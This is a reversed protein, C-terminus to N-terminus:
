GDESGPENGEMQAKLAALGAFPKADADSMPKVGDEAYIAEGLEAGEARPYDPLGLAIEELALEMLDLQDPMPEWDTDEDMESVSDAEPEQWTAVYRRDVDREVRTKVPDLTIVCAQTATAGVHGSFVWDTAGGPRLHGTLRVKQLDLLDLQAVGLALDEADFTLDVKVEKGSPMEALAIVTKTETSGAM